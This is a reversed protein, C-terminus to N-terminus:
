ASTLSSSGIPSITRGSHRMHTLLPRALGGPRLGGPRVDVGSAQMGRVRPEAEAKAPVSIEVAVVELVAMKPREVVPRCGNM